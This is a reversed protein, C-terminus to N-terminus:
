LRLAIFITNWCSWKRFPPHSHYWCNILLNAKEREFYFPCFLLFIYSCLFSIIVSSNFLSCLLKKRTGIVLALPLTVKTQCLWLLSSTFSILLIADVCVFAFIHTSLITDSICWKQFIFKIWNLNDQLWQCLFSKEIYVPSRFQLFDRSFGFKYNSDLQEMFGSKFATVAANFSSYFRISCKLKLVWYYEAFSVNMLAFFLIFEFFLALEIEM